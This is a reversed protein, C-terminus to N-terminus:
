DRAQKALLGSFPDFVVDGPNTLMSIFFSPIEIPFRAPHEKYGIKRCYRQYNGNSETNAIALLNPPIAGCNDTQFRDSINHGSPRMKAKYGNKLLHLMSESYPQLVRRNSAIPFPSLSLWWICNVADKVRIRRITVWEAPSPLKSPNWWYFEQALYFGLEKVLMLLLEFHYLSRVPLGKQWSGGIDIILSGKPKLIRKFGLAFHKFWNLYESERENGYKKKKILGFPPSTVILDVSKTRVIPSEMLDLSDGWFLKGIKTKMVLRPPNPTRNPM